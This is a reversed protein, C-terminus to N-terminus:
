NSINTPSIFQFISINGTSLNIPKSFTIIFPTMELPITTSIPLSTSLINPNILSKDRNYIKIIDTTVISWSQGNGGDGNNLYIRQLYGGFYLPDFFIIKISNSTINNNVIPISTLETIFCKFGIGEFSSEGCQMIELTTLPTTPTYISLPPIFNNTEFILFTCYLLLQSTSSSPINYRATFVIGFHGYFTPFTTYNLLELNLNTPLQYIGNVSMTIIPPITPDTIAINQKQLTFKAYTISQNNDPKFTWLFDGNGNVVTKTKVPTDSMFPISQVVKGDQGIIIAAYQVSINGTSVQSNTSNLYLVLSFKELLPHIEIKDVPCFNIPDFKFDVDNAVLVGNPLIYRMIVRSEACQKNPLRQQLRIIATGDTTTDFEVPFLNSEAYTITKLSITSSEKKATDKQTAVYIQCDVLSCTQICSEQSHKLIRDFHNMKHKVGSNLLTKTENVSSNTSGKNDGGGFSKITDKNEPVGTKPQAVVSKPEKTGALCVVTDGKVVGDNKLKDITDCKFRESTTQVNIGGKIDDLKSVDFESFSGTVDVSGGIQGLKPFGSIIELSPNNSIVLASGVTQLEPFNTSKLFQNSDITITGAVSHLNQFTFSPFINESIVLNNSITSLASVALSGANKITLDNVTDLYPTTLNLRGRGNGTIYITDISKVNPIQLNEMQQNDHVRLSSMKKVNLGYIGRAGTETIELNNAETLGASFTLDTLSPLKKVTLTDVKQLLPFELTTLSTQNSVLIRTASVLNPFSVRRINNNSNVDVTGELNQIGPIVLDSIPLSSILITRSSKGHM